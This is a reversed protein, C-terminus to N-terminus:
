KARRWILETGTFESNTTLPKPNSWGLDDGVLFKINAMQTTGGWNPLSSQEIRLTLKKQSEDITYTGSESVPGQASAQSAGITSNGRESSALAPATHPTIQLSYRGDPGFSATGGPLPGFGPTKTGDARVHDAISLTWSGVILEKASKEQAVAASNLSLFSLTLLGCYGFVRHRNTM